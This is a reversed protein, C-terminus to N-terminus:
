IKGKTLARVASYLLIRLYLKHFGLLAKFQWGLGGRQRQVVASGFYLNTSESKGLLQSVM